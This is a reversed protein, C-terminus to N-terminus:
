VLNNRKAFDALYVVSKVKLKEILRTKYTSVTKNSLLMADGIEKNSLGNSLQQLITLERDSLSQILELDTADVDSRRVSSTALNPFFTYGDMVAKIAKILEDLDNTKSIYGAAGAKMCRMSYFLASQSTLVLIKSSLGLASIRSIVELGDLKPMAIDLIILDPAHERALQVADAGNDAEAVVEFHEQKLLMKVSSRIFPHDDVVIAKLM